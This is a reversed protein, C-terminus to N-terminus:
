RVWTRSVSGQAAKDWNGSENDDNDFIDDKPEGDEYAVEPNDTPRASDGSPLTVLADTGPTGNKDAKLTQAHGDAFVAIVKNAHNLHGRDAIVVRTSKAATPVSWDFAFGPLNPSTSSGGVSATWQFASNDEYPVSKKTPAFGGQSPCRFVNNPLENDTESVLLDLSSIASGMDDPTASYVGNADTEAAPWRQNNDNSYAIMATVLQKQNSMCNARRASERAMNIAPLLLGALIAIISIVVLLEILTFGQRSTTRM